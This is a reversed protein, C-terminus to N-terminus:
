ELASIQRAEHDHDSWCYDYTGVYGNIEIKYIDLHHGLTQWIEEVSMGPFSSDIDVQGIKLYGLSLSTDDWNLGNATIWDRFEQQDRDHWPQNGGMVTDRGWEIDFEGSYYKLATIAECTTGSGISIDTADAGVNLKPAKEDRFVEYLTKGIQTWHMYVGGFQRDYKNTLFGQRHENTLDFRPANFFTTIQSPRIWFPNVALKRQSLVLSEIEHCINNLQRIAYKTKADAKTYYQSIQWVKGQLIEFHNHLQNMIRHKIALRRNGLSVDDAFRVVDPTFWEEIHYPDLGTQSWVGTADFKNIQTIYNNLSNCLYDLNRRTHAFGLFCFNKELHLGSEIIGILATQWDRALQNNEPIITYSIQDSRNLPDRLTIKVPYLNGGSM